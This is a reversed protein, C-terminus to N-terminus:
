PVRVCVESGVRLLDGEIAYTYVLERPPQYTWRREGRVEGACVDYAHGQEPSRDLTWTHGDTSWRRGSGEEVHTCADTTATLSWVGHAGSAAFTM